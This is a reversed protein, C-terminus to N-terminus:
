TALVMLIREEVKNWVQSSVRVSAEKCRVMLENIYLYNILSNMEAESFILWERELRFATLWAEQVLQRFSNKIEDSKDPSPTRPKLSELTCALKEFDVEKKFICLDRFTYVRTFVGNFASRIDLGLAYSLLVAERIVREVSPMLSHTSYHSQNITAYHSRFIDLALAIAASRKAATSHTIDNAWVLLNRLQSFNTFKQALVEIHELLRDSNSLLGSSLLFIERWQQANCYRELLNKLLEFDQSVYQATLYEQLTLHSFSYIDEAREVLIGQQAVIADLVTKGDLYKPRDVTDALFQKIQDVLEHQTFFLQDHAFGSYAIESLLVKELDTNLGQYIEGPIIRKEAAWEELLIDLAKRYLSARNSPFSQTRDYVLCLFTLLLPTQSLEKAAANGPENLIEWCRTATKSEKDLESSFWNHIFEQIQENNFDALEIDRFRNWASQYAAIRCSSIYRNLDYRTIFNNIADTVNNLYQKPVEDLGDLLILVKGKELAHIAFESSDPFGFNTLESTIVKILDIKESTFRKLELMVPICRYRYSGLEGKLAELGVRRLYTSKGSGPGGLVMLYQNENAVTADDLKISSQTQFRRQKRDRYVKELTELNQFQRISLEDLFQVRTYINELDVSKQMGLLKLTGYRSYFKDKYLKLAQAAQRRDGVTQAFSGGVKRAIDFVIGVLGGALPDVFAEMGTM